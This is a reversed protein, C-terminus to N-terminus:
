KNFEPLDTTDINPAEDPKKEPPPESPAKDEGRKEGPEKASAAPASGGGEGQAIRAAARQGYESSAGAQELV